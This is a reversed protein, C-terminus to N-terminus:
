PRRYLQVFRDTRGRIAPDYVIRTLDDEPNALVDSEAELVFGAKAMEAKVLAPDIRHHALTEGRPEAGAKARHDVVLVLGGRVMADYVKKLAKEPDMRPIRYQADEWWLDHICMHFLVRDIRDPLRMRDPYGLILRVNPHQRKLVSWGPQLEDVAILGETSHAFVMGTPGVVDAILRSYYGTGAVMDLVRQGPGLRFLALVEAPRRRADAAREAAPRLPAALAKAIDAPGADAAAGATLLLGLLLGQGAGRLLGSM